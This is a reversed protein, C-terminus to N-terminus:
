IRCVWRRRRRHTITRSLVAPTSLSANFRTPRTTLPLDQFHSHSPAGHTHPSFHPGITLRALRKHSKGSAIVPFTSLCRSRTCRHSCQHACPVDSSSISLFSVMPLVTVSWWTPREVVSLMSCSHYRRHSPLTPRCSLSGPYRLRTLNLMDRACFLGIPSVMPQLDLSVM